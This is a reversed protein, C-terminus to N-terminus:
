PAADQIQEHTATSPRTAIWADIETSVWAISRPTIRVPKPFGYLTMAKYVTSRKLGTVAMVNRLRLLRVTQGASAEEGVRRRSELYIEKRRSERSFHPSLMEAVNRAALYRKHANELDIHLEKLNFPPQHLAAMKQELFRATSEDCRFYAAQSIPMLPTGLQQLVRAALDSSMGIKLLVGMEDFLAYCGPRDPIQNFSGRQICQFDALVIADLAKKIQSAM